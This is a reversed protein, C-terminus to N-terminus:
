DQPSYETGYIKACKHCELEASDLAEQIYWTLESEDHFMEVAEPESGFNQSALEAASPGEQLNIHVEPHDPCSFIVGAECCLLIAYNLKEDFEPQEEKPIDM